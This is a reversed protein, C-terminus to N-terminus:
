REFWFLQYLFKSFYQSLSQQPQEGSVHPAVSVTRAMGTLLSEDVDGVLVFEHGQESWRLVKAGSTDSISPVNDQGRMDRAIGPLVFYSITNLGDTLRIHAAPFAEYASLLGGEIRDRICM